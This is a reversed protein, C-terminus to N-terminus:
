SQPPIPPKPQIFRYFAIGWGTLTGTFFAMYEYIWPIRDTETPPIINMALTATMLSLVAFFMVIFGVMKLTLKYRELIKGFFGYSTILGFLLLTTGLILRTTM